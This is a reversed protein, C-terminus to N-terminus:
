AYRAFFEHHKSVFQQRLAVFSSFTYIGIGQLDEPPSSQAAHVLVFPRDLGISIGLALFALPSCTEDVRYVAFRTQQIQRVLEEITWSPSAQHITNQLSVGEIDRQHSAIAETMSANFDEWDFLDGEGILYQKASGAKPLDTVFRVAGFDYEEIQNALERQMRRFLGGAAYRSLGELVSPVKAQHHQILFFPAGLGIAIGLELYVNRDETPPLLFVSFRSSFMRECIACLRHGGLLSDGAFYPKIPTASHDANALADSLTERWDALTHKDFGHSVFYEDPKEHLLRGKCLGTAFLAPRQIRTRIVKSVEQQSALGAAALQSVFQAAVEAKSYEYAITLTQPTPMDAILQRMFEKLREESALIDAALDDHLDTIQLLIATEPLSMQSRLVERYCQLFDPVIRAPELGQQRIINRAAFDNLIRQQIVQDLKNEDPRKGNLIYNGIEDATIPDKFFSEVKTFAYKPHRDFYLRLSRTLADQMREVFNPPLLGVQKLMKGLLTGELRHLNNQVITHAINGLVGGMIAIPTLPEPIM